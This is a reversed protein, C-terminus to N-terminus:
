ELVPVALKNPKFGLSPPQIIDSVKDKEEIMKEFITENGYYFDGEKKLIEVNTLDRLNMDFKMSPQIGYSRAYISHLTDRRLHLMEGSEFSPWYYSNEINIYPELRSIRFIERIVSYRKQLIYALIKQQFEKQSKVQTQIEALLNTYIFKGQEEKILDLEELLHLYQMMRSTRQMEDVDEFEITSGEWLRNVFVRIPHLVEEAGSILALKDASAKVVIAEVRDRWRNLGTEIAKAIENKPTFRLVSLNKSLEITGIKKITLFKVFMDNTSDDRLIRPYDTKLSVTWKEQTSDFYVDPDPSVMNGIKQLVFLKATKIPIVHEPIMKM